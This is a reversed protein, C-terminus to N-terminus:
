FYYLASVNNTFIAWPDNNVSTSITTRSVQVSENPRGGAGTNPDTPTRSGGDAKYKEMSFYLGVGAQLSLNPVGIFGFHLETGVRAGIDLRFGSLKIDGDAPTPNTVNPSVYPQDKITGSSFGINAEPVVEFVFHKNTNLALPVGAHLLFGMQNVDDYEYDQEVPAPGPPVTYDAVHYKFKGTYNRFGLGADIGMGENLWYRIGIVPAYVTGGDANMQSVGNTGGATANTAIPVLSAGLYGVAFSGVFQDHDSDGTATAGMGSTGASVGATSVSAKAEADDAFSPAAILLAAGGVAGAFGLRVLSLKRAQM